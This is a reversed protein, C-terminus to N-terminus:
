VAVIGISNLILFMMNTQVCLLSSNKIYHFLQEFPFDSPEHTELGIHLCQRFAITYSLFTSQKKIFKMALLFPENVAQMKQLMKQLM